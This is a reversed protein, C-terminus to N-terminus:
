PTIAASNGCLVEVIANYYRRKKRKFTARHPCKTNKITM